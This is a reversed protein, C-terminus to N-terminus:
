GKEARWVLVAPLGEYAALTAEPAHAFPRRKARVEDPGLAPEVCGTVSLGAAGFAAFYDAHTHPHERVFRRVGEDDSFPAHWGLHAQFPHLVSVVAVGGPTLVRALEAVAPTLDDLHALALASVVIDFAADALPLARLDGEAFTVEPLSARARALMAPTCDVGVVEHGRAALWRAHRGTGCAADLVRGPDRQDLMARVVPEELAIVLNGPEDYTTAWAAYGGRADVETTDEVADFRAGALIASMEQVRQEALADDEFLHRLLALGEVGLLLERLRVSRAM